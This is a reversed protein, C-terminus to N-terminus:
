SGGGSGDENVCHPNATALQMSTSGKVTLTGPIVVNGSSDITVGNLNIMPATITIQGGANLGVTGGVQKTSTGSVQMMETAVYILSQGAKIHLHQIGALTTTGSNPEHEFWSGDSGAM